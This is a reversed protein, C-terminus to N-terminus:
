LPKRWFICEWQWGLYPGHGRFAVREWDQLLHATQELYYGREANDLVLWGGPAVEPVAHVICSARARGDVLVLDFPGNGTISQAYALFNANGISGARYHEPNARDLGIEGPGPPIFWRDVNPLDYGQLKDYYEQNHEVSVLNQCRQALWVTSGGSGWEFCRWRPLMMRELYKRALHPIWPVAEIVPLIV